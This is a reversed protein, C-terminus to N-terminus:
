NGDLLEVKIKFKPLNQEILQAEITNKILKAYIRKGTKKEKDWDVYVVIVDVDEKKKIKRLDDYLNDEKYGSSIVNQAGGGRKRRIEYKFFPLVFGKYLASINLWGKTVINKAWHNM